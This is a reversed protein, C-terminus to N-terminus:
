NTMLCSLHPPCTIKHVLHECSGEGGSVEAMSDAMNGSTKNVECVGPQMRSLPSSSRISGVDEHKIWGELAPWLMTRLYDKDESLEKMNSVYFPPPTIVNGPPNCEVRPSHHDIIITNTADWCPWKKWVKTLPKVWLTVDESKEILECDKVSWTFLPEHGELHSFVPLIERLVEEMYEKSKSGWFAVRFKKFCRGLFEMMWPRFVFRRTTTKKTVRIATNPNQQTVLSTDLLTGHVNFILLHSPNYPEAISSMLASTPPSVQGGPASQSGGIDGIKTPSVTKPNKSVSEPSVSKGHSEVLSAAEALVGVDGGEVISREVGHLTGKGKGVSGVGSSVGEVIGVQVDVLSRSGSEKNGGKEGVEGGDGVGSGDVATKPSLSGHQPAVDVVDANTAQGTAAATAAVKKVGGKAARGKKPPKETARGKSGVQSNEQSVTVGKLKADKSRTLRRFEQPPTLDQSRDDTDDVVDIPLTMSAGIRTPRSQAQNECTSKPAGGHEDVKNVTPNPESVITRSELKNVLNIVISALNDLKQTNAAMAQENNQTHLLMESM